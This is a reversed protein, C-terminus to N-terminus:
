SADSEEDVPTVTGHHNEREDRIPMHMRHEFIGMSYFISPLLVLDDYPYDPRLYKIGGVGNLLEMIYAVGGFMMAYLAMEFYAQGDGAKAGDMSLGVVTGIYVLFNLNSIGHEIFYAFSTEFLGLFSLVFMLTSTGWLSAHVIAISRWINDDFDGRKRRPEKKRRKLHPKSRERTLRTTPRFRPCCAMSSRWLSWRRAPFCTGMTEWVKLRRAVLTTKRTRRTTNVVTTLRSLTTPPLSCRTSFALQGSFTTTQAQLTVHTCALSSVVAIM